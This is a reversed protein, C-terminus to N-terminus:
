RYESYDNVYIVFPSKDNDAMLSFAKMMEAVDTACAKLLESNGSKSASGAKAEQYTTEFDTGGRLKYLYELTLM